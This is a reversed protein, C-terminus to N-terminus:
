SLCISLCIRVYKLLYVNVYITLCISLHMFHSVNGNGKLLGKWYKDARSFNYSPFTVFTKRATDECLSEGMPM